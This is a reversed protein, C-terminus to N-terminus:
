AHGSIAGTIGKEIAGFIRTSPSRASTRRINVSVHLAGIPSRSLLEFDPLLLLSLPIFSEDASEFRSRPLEACPSPAGLEPLFADDPEEDLSLM